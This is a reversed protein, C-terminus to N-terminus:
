KVVGVKSIAMGLMSDQAQIIKQGTEYARAATVMDVTEQVPDVNASELSRQVLGPNVDIAPEIDNAQYLNGGVRDLKSRDSFTAISFNDIVQGNETIAGLEDVSMKDISNIQIPGGEGMVRYGEGTVLYGEQDLKFNGNRTYYIKSEDNPDVVTFFGDGKLAFDTPTGTERITGATFDKVVQQVAVGQNSEGLVSRGSMGPLPGDQRTSLQILSPFPVALVKDKKYGPVSINALNNSTTDLRLMQLNMGAATSYIGRIM